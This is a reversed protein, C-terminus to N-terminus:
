RPQHAGILEAIGVLLALNDDSLSGAKVTLTLMLASREVGVGNTMPEDFFSGMPVALVSSLQELTEFSPLALGRELGSIADVSRGSLEALKEQTLGRARRAAKLRAAVRQKINM